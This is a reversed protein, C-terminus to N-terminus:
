KSTEISFYWLGRNKSRIPNNKLQFRDLETLYFKQSNKGIEKGFNKIKTKNFIKRFGIKLFLM